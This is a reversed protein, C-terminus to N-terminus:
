VKCYSKLGIELIKYVIMAFLQPDRAIELEKCIDEQTLLSTVTKITKIKLDMGFCNVPFVKLSPCLIDKVAPDNVIKTTEKIRRKVDPMKFYLRSLYGTARYSIRNAATGSPTSSYLELNSYSREVVKLNDLVQRQFTGFEFNKQEM